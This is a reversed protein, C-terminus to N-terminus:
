VDGHDFRREVDVPINVGRMNLRNFISQVDKRTEEHLATTVAITKQLTAMQEQHRLDSRDIARQIGDDIVQRLMGNYEDQKKEIATIRSDQIDDARRLGEFMGRATWGGGLLGGMIAVVIGTAWKWFGWDTEVSM